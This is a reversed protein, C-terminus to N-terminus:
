QIIGYAKILSTTIGQVAVPGSPSTGYAVINIGPPIAVSLRAHTTIYDIIVEMRIIEMLESPNTTGDPFAGIPLGVESRRRIVESAMAQASLGSRFKSTLLLPTPLEPDSPRPITLLNLISGLVEEINNYDM